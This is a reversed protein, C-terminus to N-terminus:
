TESPPTLAAFPYAESGGDLTPHQGTQFAVRFKARLGIMDTEALNIGNVTAEELIRYTVDQRIGLIALERDGVILHAEDRDWSGNRVWTLPEGYVSDASGDDRLSQVFIPQNDDARLGRLQPLLFRGSWQATVDFGDDTVLAHTDNIDDALDVGTGREHVNGAATAGELLSDPFTSPKDQGFFVAADLKAGLAEAIRPRVQEWVGFESDDFVAEPITVICALEEVILERGEWTQRTTPKVADTTTDPHSPESVWEATPLVNIVPMRATKTGMNISRFTTLAGSSRQADQLIENIEQRQILAEAADRDIMAM